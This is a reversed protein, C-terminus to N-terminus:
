SVIPRVRVCVCVCVCVCACVSVCVCVCVCVCVPVFLSLCGKLLVNHPLERVTRSVPGRKSQTCLCSYMTTTKNKLQISTSLSLTDYLLPEMATLDENYLQYGSEPSGKAPLGYDESCLLWKIHKYDCKVTFFAVGTTGTSQLLLM